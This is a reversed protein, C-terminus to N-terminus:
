LLRPKAPALVVLGGSVIEALGVYLFIIRSDFSSVSLTSMLAIDVLPGSGACATTGIIVLLELFLARTGTNSIIGLAAPHLSLLKLGAVAIHYHLRSRTGICDLNGQM